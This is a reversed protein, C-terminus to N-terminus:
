AAKWRRISETTTPFTIPLHKERCAALYAFRRPRWPLARGASPRRWFLGALSGTTAAADETAVTEAADGLFDNRDLSKPPPASFFPHARACFGADAKGRFATADDRDFAAGLRKLMLDDLL